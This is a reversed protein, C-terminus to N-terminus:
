DMNKPDGFFMGLTFPLLVGFCIGIQTLAGIPGKIEIPATEEIYKPVYINFCGMGIGFFFIGCCLLVFSSTLTLCASVILLVNTMMLCKWRGFKALPGAFLAGLASGGTSLSQM